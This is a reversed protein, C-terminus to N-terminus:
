HGPSNYRKCGELDSLVVAMYLTEDPCLIFLDNVWHSPSYWLYVFSALLPEPHPNKEWASRHASTWFSSSSSRQESLLALARPWWFLESVSCATCSLPLLTLGSEQRQLPRKCPHDKAPIQSIRSTFHEWWKLQHSHSATGTQKHLGHPKHGLLVFLCLFPLICERERIILQSM